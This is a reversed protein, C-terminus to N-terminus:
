RALRRKQLGQKFLYDEITSATYLRYAFVPKTQGYRYVRGLSQEEHSPNWDADMLIIRNASTINVGM